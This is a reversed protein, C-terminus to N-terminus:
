PVRRRRPGEALFSPCAGARVQAAGAHLGMRVQWSGTADWAENGFALPADVAADIVELATALAVRV